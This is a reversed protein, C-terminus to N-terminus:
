HNFVDVKIHDGGFVVHTYDCSRLNNKVYDLIQLRASNLEKTLEWGEKSGDPAIFFSSYGNVEGYVIESVLAKETACIPYLLEVAKVQAEQVENHNWGTIVIANHNINGM